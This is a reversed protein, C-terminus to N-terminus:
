GQEPRHENSALGGFKRVRLQYSLISKYFDDIGFDPWPLKTFYLEAYASQYLLFNSLRLEGGTRVLLDVDPLNSTYFHKQIEQKTVTSSLYETGGGNMCRATRLREQLLSNIAMCLEDRSGYNLCFNALITQNEKTMEIAEGIFEQTKLPLPKINGSVMIKVGKTYFEDLKEAIFRNLLKFLFDIESRPRNWNETSFSYLSVIKIGVDIAAELLHAINLAGQEHGESRPVKKKKAWRGNGDMIVAVHRPIPSLSIKKRLSVSGKKLKGQM